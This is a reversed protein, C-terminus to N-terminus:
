LAINIPDIGTEVYSDRVGTVPKHCNFNSINKGELLLLPNKVCLVCSSFSLVIRKAQGLIKCVM